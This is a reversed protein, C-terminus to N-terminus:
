DGRRATGALLGAVAAAILLSSKDSKMLQGIEAILSSPDIPHALLAPQRKLVRRAVLLAVLALLLLAGAAALPAGVPGLRPQLFLWLAAITCGIAAAALLTAAFAFALAIAGRRARRTLRDALRSLDLLTATLKILESV